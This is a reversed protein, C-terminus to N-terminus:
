GADPASTFLPMAADSTEFNSVTVGVLRIGIDLPYLSRILDIATARL